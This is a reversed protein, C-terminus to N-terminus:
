RWFSKVGGLDESRIRPRLHDPLVSKRKTDSYSNKSPNKGFGEEELWRLRGAVGVTTWAASPRAKGSTLCSASLGSGSSDRDALSSGTRHSYLNPSHPRSDPGLSFTIQDPSPDGSRSHGSTVGSQNEASSSPKLESRSRLTSGGITDFNEREAVISVKLSVADESGGATSFSPRTQGPVSKSERSTKSSQSSHPSSPPDGNHSHGLASEASNQAENEPGSRNARYGSLGTSRTSRLATDRNGSTLSIASSALSTKVRARRRDDWRDGAHYNRSRTPANTQKSKIKDSDKDDPATVSAQCQGSTVSAPVEARRRRDRHNMEEDVSVARNVLKSSLQSRKLASMVCPLSFRRVDRRRFYHPPNAGLDAPNAREFSQPQLSGSRNSRSRNQAQRYNTNGVTATSSPKEPTGRPAGNENLSNIITRVSSRRSRYRIFFDREMRYDSPQHSLRRTEFTKKLVETM